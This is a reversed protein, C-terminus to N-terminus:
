FTHAMGIAITPSTVGSMAASAMDPDEISTVVLTSRSCPRRSFGAVSAM